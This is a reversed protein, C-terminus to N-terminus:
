HQERHLQPQQLRLGTRNLEAVCRDQMAKEVESLRHLAACAVFRKESSSQGSM